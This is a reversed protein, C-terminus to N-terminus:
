HRTVSMVRWRNFVSSLMVGWGKKGEPV